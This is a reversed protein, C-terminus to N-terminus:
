FLEKGKKYFNKQSNKTLILPSIFNVNITDLDEKNSLKSFDTIKGFGACNIVLDVDCNEVINELNNIDTLDYKICICELSSYKEELEKKLLNLKDLSRALLFLKKSKNALNKALEKGIGSSAGTILIKEM